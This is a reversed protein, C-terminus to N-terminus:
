FRCIGLDGTSEPQTNQGHFQLGLVSQIKVNCMAFAGHATKEM